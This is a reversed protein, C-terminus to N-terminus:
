RISSPKVTTEFRSNVNDIFRVGSKWALFPEGHQIQSYEIPRQVGAPRIPQGTSYDSAAELGFSVNSIKPCGEVEYVHGWGTNGQGPFMNLDSKLLQNNLNHKSTTLSTPERAM